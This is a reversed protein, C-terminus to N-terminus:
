FIQRIEHSYLGLQIFVLKKNVDQKTPGHGIKEKHLDSHTNCFAQMFIM